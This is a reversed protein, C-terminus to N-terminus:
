DRELAEVYAQLEPDFRDVPRLYDGILTREWTDSAGFAYRFLRARVWRPPKGAFPDQAFASLLQQDGALLKAVLRVFWPHDEVTGFPLFWMQWDLRRQYPSIWCPPRTLPGPKCPFVYERWAESEDPDSADSGELVVEFRERNVSGFAGYSNVMHLPEFSRNMAQRSSALNAIPDISLIAVYLAFGGACWLAAPSPPANVARALSVLRQPVVRELAADDFCALASVVTLWNFFSLNGSLILTLQFSVFLVGAVLRLRRPGLAALPAVVEVVLTVLV